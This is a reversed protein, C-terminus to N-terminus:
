LKGITWFYKFQACIQCSRFWGDLRDIAEWRMNWFVSNTWKKVRSGGWRVNEETSWTKHKLAVAGWKLMVLWKQCVVVHVSKPSHIMSFNKVNYMLVCNNIPMGQYPTTHIFFFLTYLLFTNGRNCAVCISCLAPSHNMEVYHKENM